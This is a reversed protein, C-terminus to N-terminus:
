HSKHERYWRRVFRTPRWPHYLFLSGFSVARAGLRFLKEIDEYDWVSPGIVPAQKLRALSEVVKWTWEQIIKGSVGGGGFSSLPSAQDPFILSWPVSNIAIAEVVGNLAQSLVSSEHTVGIKMILPHKSARKAAYCIKIMKETNRRGENATNPCSLNLEIGKIPFPNLQRVMEVTEQDSEAEISVVLPWRLKEVKPGIHRCWWEMGPNTLGIANVAGGPLRKVVRFPATWRLNGKRPKWTLTKTVVTFLSPDLLNVWRLPKEWPWGGGDFALAGSAVMFQFSHKNSLTIM